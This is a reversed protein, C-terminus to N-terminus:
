CWIRDELLSSRLGLFLVGRGELYFTKNFLIIVYSKIFNNCKM